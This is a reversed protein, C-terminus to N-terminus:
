DKHNQYFNKDLLKDKTEGRVAAVILAGYFRCADYVREDGHTIKASIGSYEVAKSPIKHFFLPAPSLRM